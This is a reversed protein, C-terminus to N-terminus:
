RGRGASRDDSGRAPADKLIVALKDHLADRAIYDKKHYSAAPDQVMGEEALEKLIAREVDTVKDTSMVFRPPEGAPRVPEWKLEHAAYDMMSKHDSYFYAKAAAKRAKLEAEAAANQEHADLRAVLDKNAKFDKGEYGSGAHVEGSLALAALVLKQEHNAMDGHVSYGGALTKKWPLATCAYDVITDYGAKKALAEAEQLIAEKEIAQMRFQQANLREELDGNAVYDKGNYGTGKYMEDRLCLAEVVVKQETTLNEGQVVYGGSRRERWLLQACAYDKVSAYGAAESIEVARMLIMQQTASYTM